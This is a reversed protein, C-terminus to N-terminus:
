AAERFNILSHIFGAVVVTYLQFVGLQWLFNGFSGVAVSVFIALLARVKWFCLYGKIRNIMVWIALLFLALGGFGYNYALEVYDNHAQKWAAQQPHRIPFAYHFAGPGMGTIAFTRKSENFVQSRIDTIAQVWVPFRGNSKAGITHQIFSPNESSAKWVMAGFILGFIAVAAMVARNNALFFVFTGVLIAAIAMDGKSLIIMVVSALCHWYRKFYLSAPFCMAVFCAALEPRGFSGSMGAGTKLPHSQLEAPVAFFVQDWGLMQIFAWASMALGCHSVVSLLQSIDRHEFRRNALCTFLMFFIFVYLAPKFNWFGTIDFEGIKLQFNPSHMLSVFVWPLFLLLPKNSFQLRVQGRWAFCAIMAMALFIAMFEKPMRTDLYTLRAPVLVYLILELFPLAVLSSLILNIHM